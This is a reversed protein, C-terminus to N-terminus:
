SYLVRVVSSCTSSYSSCLTLNSRLMHETVVVVFDLSWVSLLQIAERLGCLANVLDGRV